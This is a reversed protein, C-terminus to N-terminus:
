ERMFLLQSKCFLDFTFASTYILDLGPNMFGKGQTHHFACTSLQAVEEGIGKEKAVKWGTTSMHGPRTLLIYSSIYLICHWPFSKMRHYFSVWEDSSVGPGKDKENWGKLFIIGILGDTLKCNLPCFDMCWSHYFLFFLRPGQHCKSLELNVLSM